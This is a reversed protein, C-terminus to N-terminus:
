TAAGDIHDMWIIWESKVLQKNRWGYSDDLHTM